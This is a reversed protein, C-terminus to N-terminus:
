LNNKSIIFLKNGYIKVNSNPNTKNLKIKLNNESDIKIGSIIYDKIKLSYSLLNSTYELLQIPIDELLIVDSNILSIYNINNIIDNCVIYIDQYYGHELDILINSEIGEYLLEHTTSYFEISMKEDLYDNIQHQSCIKELLVNFYAKDIQVTDQIKMTIITNTTLPYTSDTITYTDNQNLITKPLNNLVDSYLKKILEGNIYIEVLKPNYIKGDAMFIISAIHSCVIDNNFIKYSSCNPDCSIDLEFINSNNKKCELICKKCNVVSKNVNKMITVDSNFTIYKEVKSTDSIVKLKYINEQNNILNNSEGIEIYKNEGLENDKNEKNEKINITKDYKNKYKLELEDSDLEDSYWIVENQIIQNSSKNSKIQKIKNNSINELTNKKLNYNADNNTEKLEITFLENKKDIIMKNKLFKKELYDSDVSQSNNDNYTKLEDINFNIQENFDQKEKYKNKDKRHKNQKENTINFIDYNKTYDNTQGFELANLLKFDINNKSKSKKIKYKKNQIENIKEMKLDIPKNTM